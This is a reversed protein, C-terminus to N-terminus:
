LMLEEQTKGFLVCWKSFWLKLKDGQQDSDENKDTIKNRTNRKTKCTYTHPTHIHTNAYPM